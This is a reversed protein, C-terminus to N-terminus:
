SLLPYFVFKVIVYALIISAVWSLITNEEFVYRYVKKTKEWWNMENWDKM